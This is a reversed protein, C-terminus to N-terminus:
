RKYRHHLTGSIYRTKKRELFLHIDALPMRPRMTAGPRAPAREIVNM